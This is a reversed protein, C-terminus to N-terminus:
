IEEVNLQLIVSEVLTGIYEDANNFYSNYKRFTDSFDPDDKDLNPPSIPVSKGNEELYFFDEPKAKMWKRITSGDPEEDIVDRLFKPWRWGITFLIPKDM